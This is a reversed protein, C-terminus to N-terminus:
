ELYVELWGCLEPHRDVLAILLDKIRGSPYNRIKRKMEKVQEDNGEPEVKEKMNYYYLNNYETIDNPNPPYTNLLFTIDHKRTHYLYLGDLM